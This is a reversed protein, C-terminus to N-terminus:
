VLLSARIAMWESDRQGMIALWIISFFSPLTFRYQYFDEFLLSSLVCPFLFHWTINVVNQCILM